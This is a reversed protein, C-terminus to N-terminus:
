RCPGPLLPVDLGSRYAEAIRPLAEEAVTRGSPLVTHALFEDEITVIGSSVAELKAKIVLALARWRQRVAQEWAAKSSRADRRKLAPDDQRPETITFRIRRGGIEFAVVALAIEHMYGFKTAGYRRLASEIEARSREPPVDTRAAYRGPAIM